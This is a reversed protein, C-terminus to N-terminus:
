TLEGVKEETRFYILIGREKKDKLKRREAWLHEVAAELDLFVIIDRVFQCYKRSWRVSGLVSWSLLQLDAQWEEWRLWCVFGVPLGIIFVKEVNATEVSATAQVWELRARHAISGQIDSKHKQESTKFWKTLQSTSVISWIPVSVM